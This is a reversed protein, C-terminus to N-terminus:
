GREGRAAFLIAESFGMPDPIDRLEFTGLTSASSVVVRGYNLIRGLLWQKARVDEIHSLPVYERKLSLVGRRRLVRRNTLRYFMLLLDVFRWLVLGATFLLIGGSALVFVGLLISMSALFLDGAGGTSPTNLARDALTLLYLFIVGEVTLLTVSRLIHPILSPKTHRIIREQM